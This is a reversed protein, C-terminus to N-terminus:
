AGSYHMHGCASSGGGAREELSTFNKVDVTM